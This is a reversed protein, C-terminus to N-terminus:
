WRRTEPGSRSRISRHIAIGRTAGEASTPPVSGSPDATTAGRIAAARDSATARGCPSSLPRSVPRVRRSAHASSRTPGARGSRGPRSPAPSRDLCPVCGGRRASSRRGPPHRHRAAPGGRPPRRTGARPGAAPPRRPPRVISPTPSDPGTPPSTAGSEPTGDAGAATADAADARDQAGVSSSRSAHVTSAATCPSPGTPKAARSARYPLPSAMRYSADEGPPM